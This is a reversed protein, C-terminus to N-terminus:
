YSKTVSINGEINDLAECVKNIEDEKIKLEEDLEKEMKLIDDSLTKPNFGLNKIEQVIELFSEEERKAREELRIKRNKTEEITKKLNNVKNILDDATNM